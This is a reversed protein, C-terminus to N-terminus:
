ATKVGLPQHPTWIFPESGERWGAFYDMLHGFVGALAPEQVNSAARLWDTARALWAGRTRARILHIAGDPAQRAGAAAAADVPRPGTLVELAAGGGVKTFRTLIEELRAPGGESPAGETWSDGGFAELATVLASAASAREAPHARRRAYATRAPLATRATRLRGAPAIRALIRSPPDIYIGVISGPVIESTRPGKARRPASVDVLGHRDWLRRVTARSVGGARAVAAVSPAPGGAGRVRGARLILDARRRDLQSRRGPSTLSRLGDIGLETYRRRWLYITELSVRLDRALARAGQGGASAVVIRARLRIRAGLRPSGLWSLLLARDEESVELPTTKRM